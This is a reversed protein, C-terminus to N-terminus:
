VVAALECTGDGTGNIRIWRPLSLFQSHLTDQSLVYCLSGGERSSPNSGSRTLSSAM